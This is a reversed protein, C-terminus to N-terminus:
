ADNITRNLYELLNRLIENRKAFNTEERLSTYIEKLHIKFEEPLSSDFFDIAETLNSLFGKVFLDHSSPM